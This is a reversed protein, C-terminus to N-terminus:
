VSDVVVLLIGVIQLRSTYLVIDLTLRYINHWQLANHICCISFLSCFLPSHLQTIWSHNWTFYDVSRCVCLPQDSNVEDGQEFCTQSCANFVVFVKAGGDCFMKIQISVCSCFLVVKALVLSAREWHRDGGGHVSLLFIATFSWLIHCLFSMCWDVLTAQTPALCIMSRAWLKIQYLFWLSSPFICSGQLGTTTGRRSKSNRWFPDSSSFEILSKYLNFVM